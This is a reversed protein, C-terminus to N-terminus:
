AAAPEIGVSAPLIHGAIQASGGPRPEYVRIEFAIFRDNATRLLRLDPTSAMFPALRASPPATIQGTVGGDALVELRYQVAGLVHDPGCWLEGCGIIQQREAM